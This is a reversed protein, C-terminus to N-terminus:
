ALCLPETTSEIIKVAVGVKKNRPEIRVIEGLCKLLLTGEPTGLEVEFRVLRSLLKCTADTEFFVGSASINRTAGKTSGLSVPLKWSIREARKEGWNQKDRGAFDYRSVSAVLDYFHSAENNALTAEDRIADNM